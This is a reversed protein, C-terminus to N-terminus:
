LCVGDKNGGSTACNAYAQPNGRRDILEGKKVSEMKANATNVRKHAQATLYVGAVSVVFVGGWALYCTLGVPGWWVVAGASVGATVVTGVGTVKRSNIADNKDEAYKRKLRDETSRMSLEYRSGEIRMQRMDQILDYLDQNGLALITMRSLVIM